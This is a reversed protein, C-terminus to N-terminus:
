SNIFLFHSLPNIQFVTHGRLPSSLIVWPKLAPVNQPNWVWLDGAQRRSGAVTNKLNEKLLYIPTEEHASCRGPETV